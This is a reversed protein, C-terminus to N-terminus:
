EHGSMCVLMKFAFNSETKTKFEDRFSKLKNYKGM